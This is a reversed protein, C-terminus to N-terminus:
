PMRKWMVGGIEIVDRKLQEREIVINGALGVAAFILRAVNLLSPERKAGLIGLAVDGIHWARTIPVM